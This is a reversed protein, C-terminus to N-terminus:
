KGEGVLDDFLCAIAAIGFDAQPACRTRESRCRAMVGKALGAGM